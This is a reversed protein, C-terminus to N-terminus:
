AQVNQSFPFFDMLKYERCLPSSLRVRIPRYRQRTPFVRVYPISREAHSGSTLNIFSILLLTCVGFSAAFISGPPCTVFACGVEKTGKWVVQTFHSFTPNQPNYDKAEANWGDIGDSVTYSGSGAALNEILESILM